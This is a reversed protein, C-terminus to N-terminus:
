GAERRSFGNAPVNMREHIIKLLAPQIPNGFHRVRELSVHTFQVCEHADAVGLQDGV